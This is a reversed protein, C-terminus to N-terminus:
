LFIIKTRNLNRHVLHLRDPEAKYVLWNEQNLGAAQIAKKQKLTPNKGNKM